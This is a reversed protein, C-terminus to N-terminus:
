KILQFLLYVVIAVYIFFDSLIFGWLTRVLCLPTAKEDNSYICYGAYTFFIATYVTQLAIISWFPDSLFGGVLSLLYVAFAVIAAARFGSVDDSYHV